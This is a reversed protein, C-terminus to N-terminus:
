RKTCARKQMSMVMNHHIEIYLKVGNTKRQIGLAGEDAVRIYEVLDLNRERNM